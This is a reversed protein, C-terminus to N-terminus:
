HKRGMSKEIQLLLRRVAKRGRPIRAKLRGAHETLLVDDKMCDLNFIARPHQLRKHLRTGQWLIPPMLMYGSFSEPYVRNSKRNSM